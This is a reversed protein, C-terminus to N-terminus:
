TRKVILSNLIVLGVVGKKRGICREWGKLRKVTNHVLSDVQRELNPKDVHDM